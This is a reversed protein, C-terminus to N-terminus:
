RREIDKIMKEFDVYPRWRELTEFAWAAAQKLTMKELQLTQTVARSDINDSIWERVEDIEFDYRGGIKRFPMNMSQYRNVTQVSVELERALEVKNM